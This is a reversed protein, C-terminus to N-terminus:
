EWDGALPLLLTGPLTISYAHHATTCPETSDSAASAGPAFRKEKGSCGNHTSPDPSPVSLM